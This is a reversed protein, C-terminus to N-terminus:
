GFWHIWPKRRALRILSMRYSAPLPNQGMTGLLDIGLTEGFRSAAEEQSVYQVSKVQSMNELRRGIDQVTKADATIDLFVEVDFGRIIKAEIAELHIAAEVLIGTIGVAAIMMCQAIFWATRNRRM